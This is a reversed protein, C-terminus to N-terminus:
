LLELEPGMRIHSIWPKTNCAYCMTKNYALYPSFNKLPKEKTFSAIFCEISTCLICLKQRILIIQNGETFHMTKRESKFHFFLDCNFSLIDNIKASKKLFNWLMFIKTEKKSPGFQRAVLELFFFDLLDCYMLM